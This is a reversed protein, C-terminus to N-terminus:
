DRLGASTDRACGALLAATDEGSVGVPLRSPQSSRIVLTAASLDHATVGALFCFRLLSRLTYGFAKVSTPKPTAGEDLLARTM